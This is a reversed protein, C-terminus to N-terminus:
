ITAGVTNIGTLVEEHFLAPIGNPTHHILWQQLQAVRDRLVNADTPTQSAYQSFHGMGNPILRQCQATDLHGTSDFLDDMYRSQLQAVREDMSMRAYLSDVMADNDTTMSPRVCSTMALATILLPILKM